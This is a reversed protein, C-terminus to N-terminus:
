WCSSPAPCCCRSRTSARRCRRRRPRRGRPGAAVERHLAAPLGARRGVGRLVRLGAVTDAGLTTLAGSAERQAAQARQLPRIVLALLAVLVPVGVAVVVGLTVSSRLLLVTVVAYAVVSGAFRATVDYVDGSASRTPRWRRCSRAPRWSALCRWVPARCTTDSSARRAWPQRFGTGSRRATGSPGRSRRHRLSDWCCCSGRGCPRRRATSLSTLRGTARRRRHRDGARARVPRAGPVADCLVGFGAGGAADAVPSTGALGHLAVTRSRRTRRARGRRGPSASTSLSLVDPCSLRRYATFTRAM